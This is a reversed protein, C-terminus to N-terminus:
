TSKSGRILDLLNTVSSTRDGSAPDILTIISVLLWTISIALAQDLINNPVHSPTARLALVVALPAVASVIRGLM